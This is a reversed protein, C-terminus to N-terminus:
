GANLHSPLGVFSSNSQIEHLRERHVEITMIQKALPPPSAKVFGKFPMDPRGVLILYESRNFTFRFLKPNKRNNSNKVLGPINAAVAWFGM